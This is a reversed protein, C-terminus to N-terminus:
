PVQQSSDTTPHGVGFVADLQQLPVVVSPKDTLRVRSTGGSWARRTFSVLGVRNERDTLRAVLARALKRQLSEITDDSDNTWSLGPPPILQQQNVWDRDRGVTGDKDVDIGSALFPLAAVAESTESSLTRHNGPVATPDSACGPGLLGLLLVSLLGRHCCAMFRFSASVIDM